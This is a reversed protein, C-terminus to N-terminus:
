FYVSILIILIISKYDLRTACYFRKVSLYSCKSGNVGIDTMKKATTFKDSFWKKIIEIYLLFVLDSQEDIFGTTDFVFTIGFNDVIVDDLFPKDSLAVTTEDDEAAVVVTAAATEVVCSCRWGGIFAVTFRDDFELKFELETLDIALLDFSPAEM